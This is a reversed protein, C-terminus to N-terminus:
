NLYPKKKHHAPIPRVKKRKTFKKYRSYKFRLKYSDKYNFIFFSQVGTKKFGKAKIEVFPHSREYYKGALDKIIRLGPALKFQNLPTHFYNTQPTHDTNTFRAQRPKFAYRLHMVKHCLPYRRNQMFHILLMVENYWNEVQNFNSPLPSITGLQGLHVSSMTTPQMNPALVEVCCYYITTLLWTM